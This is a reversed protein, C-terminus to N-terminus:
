DTFRAPMVQSPDQQQVVPQVVIEAWRVICIGANKLLEAARARDASKALGGESDVLRTEHHLAVYDSVFYVAGFMKEVGAAAQALYAGEDDVTLPNVSQVTTDLFHSAEDLPTPLSAHTASKETNSAGFLVNEIKIATAAQGDDILVF